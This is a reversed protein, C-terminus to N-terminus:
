GAEARHVEGTTEITRPRPTARGFMDQLGGPAPTSATGNAAPRPADKSEYIGQYNRAISHQIAALARDPGMAVLEALQQALGQSTYPKVRLERRHAIWTSWSHRMAATDLTPHATWDVELQPRPAARKPTAPTPPLGSPAKEARLADPSPLRSRDDAVGDAIATRDSQSADADAGRDRRRGWRKANGTKGAASKRERNATQADREREQRPNVLVDGRQEFMASLGGQWLRAFRRSPMGVSRALAAPDCVIGKNVWSLGLLDWFVGRQEFTLARYARDTWYDAPYLQFAPSKPKRGSKPTSPPAQESM